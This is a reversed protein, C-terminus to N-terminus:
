LFRRMHTLKESVNALKDKIVEFMRVMLKRGNGAKGLFKTNMPRTEYQEEYAVRQRCVLALPRIGIRDLIAQPLGCFGIRM